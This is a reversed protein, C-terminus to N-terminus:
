CDKQQARECFGGVVDDLDIVFDTPGHNLYCLLQLFLGAGGHHVQAGPGDPRQGVLQYKTM